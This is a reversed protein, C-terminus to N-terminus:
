AKVTWALTRSLASAKLRLAMFDTMSLSGTMAAFFEGAIKKDPQLGEGGIEPPQVTKEGIDFAGRGQDVADMCLQFRLGCAERLKGVLRWDELRPESWYLRIPSMGSIEVEAVNGIRGFRM